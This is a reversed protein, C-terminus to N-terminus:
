YLKAIWNCECTAPVLIFDEFRKMKIYMYIIEGLPFWPKNVLACFLKLTAREQSSVNLCAVLFETSSHHGTTSGQNIGTLMASM